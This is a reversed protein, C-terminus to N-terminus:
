VGELRKELIMGFGLETEYEVPDCPEVLFSPVSVITTVEGVKDRHHYGADSIVRVRQGPLFKPVPFDHVKGCATCLKAPKARRMGQEEEYTILDEELGALARSWRDLYDRLENLDRRSTSFTDGSFIAADIEDFAIAVAQHM